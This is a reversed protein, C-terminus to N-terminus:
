VISKRDEELAVVQDVIQDNSLTQRVATRLSKRFGCYTCDNICYNGIYLPAFLVIRNGYVNRKLTRAAEFLEELGEPSQIALLQATEEISLPKKDLAKAFIERCRPLDEPTEAILQHFRPDDIFDVAGESLSMDMKYRNM